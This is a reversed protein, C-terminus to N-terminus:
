ASARAEPSNVLNPKEEIGKESIKNDPNESNNELQKILHINQLPNENVWLIKISVISNNSTYQHQPQEESKM